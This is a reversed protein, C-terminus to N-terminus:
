WLKDNSLRENLIDNIEEPTLKTYDEATLPASKSGCLILRCSRHLFWGGFLEPTQGHERLDHGVTNVGRKKAEAIRLGAMLAKMGKEVKEPSHRNLQIGIHNRNKGKNLTWMVVDAGLDFAAERLQPRGWVHAVSLRNPLVYRSGFKRFDAIGQLRQKEHAHLIDFMEFARSLCVVWDIETDERHYYALGSLVYHISTPDIAEVNDTAVTLKIIPWLAEEKDFGYHECMLQFSSAKGVDKDHQDLPGGGTDMYLVRHGAAEEDTLRQGAPLMKFCYDADGVIRTVAMWLCAYADTDPYRHTVLIWPLEDDFNPVVDKVMTRFRASAEDFRQSMLTDMDSEENLHTHSVGPVAM